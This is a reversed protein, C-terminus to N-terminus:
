RMAFRLLSNPDGQEITGAQNVVEMQWTGGERFARLVKHANHSSFLTPMANAVLDFQGGTGDYVNFDVNKARDFSSGRKFAAIVFYLATITAPIRAFKVDITEDDGDGRGTTNDGSHVVSGGLPDINDLGIYRVPNEGSMGIAILDLDSGRREKLKGLFGGSMGTSTDWAAGVRLTDVGTLDAPGMEKTLTIM